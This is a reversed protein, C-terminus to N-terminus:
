SKQKFKANMIKKFILTTFPTTIPLGVLVIGLTKLIHALWFHHTYLAIMWAILCLLFDTTSDYFNSTKQM